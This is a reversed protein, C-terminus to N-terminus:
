NVCRQREMQCSWEWHLLEMVLLKWHIVMVWHSKFPSRSAVFNLLVLNNCMRCTAGSDVIWSDSCDKASVSLAHCVLMGASESDLSSGDGRKVEVTNARQSDSRKDKAFEYCNHLVQWHHCQPGKRRPQQEVMLAKDSSGGIDAQEKLKREEHLLCETVVEMKPVEQNATMLINFSDLLSTLLHIVHDEAAVPDGAVSLGDFIETM